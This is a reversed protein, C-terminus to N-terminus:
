GPWRAHSFLRVRCAATASKWNARRPSAISEGALHIGADLGELGAVDMTGADPNWGIARGKGRLRQGARVIPTIEHTEGALRRRLATGILGRSGSIAIRLRQYQARQPNNMPIFVKAASLASSASRSPNILFEIRM